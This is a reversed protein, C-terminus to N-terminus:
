PEYKYIYVNDFNNLYRFHSNNNLWDVKPYKGTDDATILISEGNLRSRYNLYFSADYPWVSKTELGTYYAFVPWNHHSYISGNYHLENIIYESASIEPTKTYDILNFQTNKPIIAIISYALLLAIILFLFVKYKKNFSDIFSVIGKSALLSLPIAIPFIYRLEKHPTYALYALFLLIWSILVFDVLMEKYEKKKIIKFFGALYFLLGVPIVITFVKVLNTFYFLASENKDAVMLSGRVIPAYFSGLQVQAWIFYPAMVLGAGIVFILIRKWEVKKFLFYLVIVFFLLASTFKMLTALSLFVGSFFLYGKKEHFLALYFSIAMLGMAPVDTLLFNSNLVIFPAFGVVLGALAGIKFGYLKWGILFIFVPGLTSLAATLVSAAISSHWFIFIFAFLISLLPPRFSFEDYNTRGSFLVEANQLYVTEDWWHAVRIPFVRIFFCVLIISIILIVIAKKNM